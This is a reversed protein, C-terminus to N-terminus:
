VATWGGDVMLNAGTIFSADESALFVVARGIELPDAPRKILQELGLNPERAATERTLGQEEAVREVSASWVAGPCVGNVRIGDDVLDLAMCRTMQVVAAKTASYTLFEKQAIFGSVSGINVIAGGGAERMHPVVHKTALAPGMINVSMVEQWEAPTADLGKLIFIGANNVLITPPGLEGVLQEVAAVVNSEDAIDCLALVCRREDQSLEAATRAGIEGNRDLIGVDAGADILAEAIGRGIGEAGGTVFAIRGELNAM